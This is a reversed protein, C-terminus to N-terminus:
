EGAKEDVVDEPNEEWGVDETCIYHDFHRRSGSLIGNAENSALQIKTPHNSLWRLQIKWSLQHERAHVVWTM